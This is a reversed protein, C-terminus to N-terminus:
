PMTPIGGCDQCVLGIRDYQIRCRPCESSADADLSLVDNRVSRAQAMLSEVAPLFYRLRFNEATREAEAQDNSLPIPHLADRRVRDSFRHFEEDDALAAAIALPHSEALFAKSLVDISRLAYHPFLISLIAHTWRESSLSPYFRRHLLWFQVMIQVMLIWVSLLTLFFPPEDEFRWYAYPLLLFVAFFLVSANFRLPLVARSFLRAKRLPRRVNMSRAITRGIASERDDAPLQRLRDITRSLELAAAPTTCKGFTIGDVVLRAESARITAINDWALFGAGL